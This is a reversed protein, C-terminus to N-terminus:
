FLLPDEESVPPAFLVNEEYDELQSAQLLARDTRLEVVVAEPAIYLQGPIFTKNTKM